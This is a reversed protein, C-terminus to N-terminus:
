GNILRAARLVVERIFGSRSNGTRVSAEDVETLHRLDVRFSVMCAGTHAQSSNERTKPGGKRQLVRRPKFGRKGLEEDLRAASTFDRPRM